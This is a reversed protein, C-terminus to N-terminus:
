APLVEQLLHHKLQSRSTSQTPTQWVFIPLSPCQLCLSCCMHLDTSWFPSLSLKKRGEATILAELGRSHHPGRPLGPEQSQLISPCPGGGPPLYFCDHASVSSINQQTLKTIQMRQSTILKSACVKSIGQLVLPSPACSVDYNQPHKPGM